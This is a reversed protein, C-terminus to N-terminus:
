HLVISVLVTSDQICTFMISNICPFIHAEGAKPPPHRMEWQMSAIFFPYRGGGGAPLQANEMANFCYFVHIEGAEPPSNRMEWQMSAIFFTYRGRRRRPTAYEGKCQLLLFRTDGGGEAPLQANEKANFCYFVHIEGAKPPSNRMRRQM